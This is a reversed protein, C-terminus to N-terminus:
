EKSNKLQKIIKEDGHSILLIRSSAKHPKKPFSNKLTLFHVPFTSPVVCLFQIKYM